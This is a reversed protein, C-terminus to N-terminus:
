DKQMVIRYVVTYQWVDDIKFLTVGPERVLSVQQFGTISLEAFDFAAKLLEFLDCVETALTTRSFLNFRILCDESQETFTWDQTDSPLSFVCYPFVAKEDAVTNYMATLASFLSTAQYRAFIADFLVKM